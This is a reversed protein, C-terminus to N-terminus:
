MGMADFLRAAASKRGRDILDDIAPLTLSQHNLHRHLM